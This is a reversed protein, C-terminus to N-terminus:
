KEVYDGKKEVCKEWRELLKFVGKRNFKKGAARLCQRVATQLADNVEYRRGRMQNKVFGFFHYDSPALDPSDRYRRLMESTVAKRQVKHDETLLHPVWHVCIKRYGLSGIMEQIANHRIGFKTAIADLTV